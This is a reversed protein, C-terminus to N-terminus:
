TAEELNTDFDNDDDLMQEDELEPNQAATSKKKEEIRERIGVRPNLKKAVKVTKEDSSEDLDM